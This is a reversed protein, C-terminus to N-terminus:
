RNFRLAAGTSIIFMAVASAAAVPPWTGSLAIYTWAALVAPYILGSAMPESVYRALTTPLLGFGELGVPRYVFQGRAGLEEELHQGLGILYTCRRIGYIEFVFFGLSVLFGLIGLAVFPWSLRGDPPFEKLVVMIGAGSALPLAGLLTGRFTDIARYTECVQKYIELRATARLEETMTGRKPPLRG